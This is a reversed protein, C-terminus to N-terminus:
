STPEVWAARWAPAEFAPGFYWTERYLRGGRLQLLAAVFWASGDPYSSTGDAWWFDGSGAIRNVTNLPTVVWRDESGVVRLGLNSPRGGPWNEM